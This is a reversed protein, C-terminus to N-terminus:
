DEGSQHIQEGAAVHDGHDLVDLVAPLLRVCVHREDPLRFTLLKLKYKRVSCLM